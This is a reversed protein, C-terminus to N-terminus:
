MCYSGAVILTPVVRSTPDPDPSFREPDVFNIYQKRRFIHEWGMRNIVNKDL